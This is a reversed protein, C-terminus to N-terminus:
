LSTGAHKKEKVEEIAAALTEKASKITMAFATEEDFYPRLANFTALLPSRLEPNTEMKGEDRSKVSPDNRKEERGGREDAPADRKCLLDKLAVADGLVGGVLGLLERLDESSFSKRFGGFGGSDAGGGM